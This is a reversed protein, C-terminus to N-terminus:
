KLLTMKRTAAKGIGDFSISYFYTGSSVTEGSINTGDWTISRTQSDINYGKIMRGSVDYIALQGDRIEGDLPITTEANFPNPYNDGLNFEFPLDTDM